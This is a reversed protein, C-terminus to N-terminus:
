FCQYDNLTAKSDNEHNVVPELLILRTVGKSEGIVVASSGSRACPHPRHASQNSFVSMDFFKINETFLNMAVDNEGSKKLLHFM